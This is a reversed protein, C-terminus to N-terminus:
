TSSTPLHHSERWWFWSRAMGPNRWPTYGIACKAVAIPSWSRRPEYVLDEFGAFVPLRAPAPLVRIQQDSPEAPGFAQATVSGMLIADSRWRFGFRYYRGAETEFGEVRGDISTENYITLHPRAM